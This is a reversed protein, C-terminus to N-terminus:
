SRSALKMEVEEGGLKWKELICLTSNSNWLCGLPFKEDEQKDGGLMSRDLSPFDTVISRQIAHSLPRTTSQRDQSHDATPEIGQRTMGFAKFISGM